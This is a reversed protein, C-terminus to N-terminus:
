EHPAPDVTCFTARGFAGSWRTRAAVEVPSVCTFPARIVAMTPTVAVVEAPQRDIMICNGHLPHCTNADAVRDCSSGSGNIADFDRGYLRVLDGAVAFSPVISTITPPRRQRTPLAPAVTIPAAPNSTSVDLAMVAATDCTPREGCHEWQNDVASVPQNTGNRLNNGAGDNFAFANRGAATDSGFDARATDSLSAGATLNHVAALGRVTAVAAQGAGDFVSLGVGTRGVSGNGCAFDSNLAAVSLARVSLGRLANDLSLNGLTLLRAPATGGIAAGNASIGNASFTGRNSRSINEVAAVGGGLTAQIGGDVNQEVLSHQIIAVAGDSVKIGKDLAGRAVSESVVVPTITGALNRIAIVDDGCVGNPFQPTTQRCVGDVICGLQDVTGCLNIARGVARVSDLVVDNATPGDVLVTDSNGGVNFFQLGEIRYAPGSVRLAPSNLGNADISRTQPIGDIDFGDITVQGSTLTPLPAALVIAGNLNQAFQVLSPKAAVEATTLASRLCGSCDAADDLTTVTLVTRYLPWVLSHIGASRDLLQGSRGQLQQAAEGSLGLIRHRWRGPRLGDVETRCGAPDSPACTLHVAYDASLAGAGDDCAPDALAGFVLVDSGAADSSPELAITLSAGPAPCQSAVVSRPPITLCLALWLLPATRM